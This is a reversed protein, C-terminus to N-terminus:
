FGPQAHVAIPSQPARGFRVRFDDGCDKSRGSARRHRVQRNEVRLQLDEVPDLVNDKSVTAHDDRNGVITLRAPEGGNAAAEKLVVVDRRM